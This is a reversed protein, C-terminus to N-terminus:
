GKGLLLYNELFFQVWYGRVSKPICFVSSFDETTKKFFFTIYIYKKKVFILKQVEFFLLTQILNRHKEERECTTFECTSIVTGIKKKHRFYM